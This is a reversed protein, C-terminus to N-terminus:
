CSYGLKVRGGAVAELAVSCAAGDVDVDLTEGIRLKEVAV